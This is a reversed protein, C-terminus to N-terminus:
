DKIFFFQQCARALDMLNETRLFFQNNVNLENLIEQVQKRTVKTPL